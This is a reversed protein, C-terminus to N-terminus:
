QAEKAEIEDLMPGFLTPSVRELEYLILTAINQIEQDADPATRRECFQMWARLNGTVILATETCNPLVSRAAERAQKRGLGEGQLAAVLEEYLQVSRNFHKVVEDEARENGELAPPMVLRCVSSDVFRQSQVSFSLHRHRTMEALCSRSMGTIKVTATAHEAISGHAKEVVTSWLYDKNRRTAPNPKSWSKYCERGAYEALSEADTADEDLAMIPEVTTEPDFLQTHAILTVEPEAIISM